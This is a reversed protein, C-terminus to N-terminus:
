QQSVKFLCKRHQHLVTRQHLFETMSPYKDVAFLSRQKRIAVWAAEQQEAAVAKIEDIEAALM